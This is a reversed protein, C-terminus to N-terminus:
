TDGSVGLASRASSLFGEAGIPPTSLATATALLLSSADKFPSVAATFSGIIWKGRVSALPPANNVLAVAEQFIQEIREESLPRVTLLAERL